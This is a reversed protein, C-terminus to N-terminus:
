KVKNSSLFESSMEYIKDIVIDNIFRAEKVLYKAEEESYGEALRVNYIIDDITNKPVENSFDFTTDVNDNNLFPITMIPNTLVPMKEGKRFNKLYNQPPVLFWSYSHLPSTTALEDKGNVTKKYQRIQSHDYTPDFAYLGHINYKNDDVSVISRCHGEEKGDDNICTTYISFSNYGLEKLIQCFLTAYGVCVINGTQIVGALGRSEMKNSTSEKYGFSKVIDYAFTIQEIESLESSLILEKYYNITERMAIFDKLSCIDSNTYKISLKHKREIESLLYIDDYDKNEVILQIEDVDPVYQDIINVYKKVDSISDKCNLYFKRTEKKSYFDKEFRCINSNIDDNNNIELRGDNTEIMNKFKIFGFTEANQKIYNLGNLLKETNNIDSYIEVNAKKLPYPRETVELNNYSLYSLSGANIYVMEKPILKLDTYMLSNLNMKKVNTNNAVYEIKDFELKGSNININTLNAMKKLFLPNENIIGSSINMSTITDPIYEEILQNLLKLDFLDMHIYLINDEIRFLEDSNRFCGYVFNDKSNKIYEIIKQKDENSITNM